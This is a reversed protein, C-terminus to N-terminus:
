ERIGLYLGRGAPIVAVGISDHDLFEASCGADRIAAFYEAPTFLTLFDVETFSTIGDPGGVLFRQELRTANGERTSHSVRAITRGNDERVLDGAVYGEIFEDPSWWPEVVLVGGPNLHRVMAAIAGRMASLGGVYSIATFMCVVADFTRNLEFNRMDGDHVVVDALRNYAGERMAASRELGEVHGFLTAFTALHAGTGCAVDLLSDAAPLRARILQAIRDAEKAWNKGRSEYITEYVKALEPGYM